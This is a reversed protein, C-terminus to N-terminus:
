KMDESPNFRHWACFIQKAALGCANVLDDSDQSNHASEIGSRASKMCELVFESIKQEKGECKWSYRDNFNCASLLLMVFVFVLKTMPTKGQLDPTPKTATTVFITEPFDGARM